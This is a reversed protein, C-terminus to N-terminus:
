HADSGPRTRVFLDRTQDRIHDAAARNGGRLEITNAATQEISIGPLYLPCTAAQVGRSTAFALHCRMRHTLGSTDAGERMRLRVGTPLEEIRGVWRSLLPCGTRAEISIGQCEKDEFKALAEAARTHERAFQEHREAAWLHEVTPNHEELRPRPDKGAVEPSPYVWDVQRSNPDYQLREQQAQQQHSAAEARHAETTMEEPRVHGCALVLAAAVMWPTRM